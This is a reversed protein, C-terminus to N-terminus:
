NIKAPCIKTYGYLCPRKLKKYRLFKSDLCDRFPFIKRLSKIILSVSDGYPFPGFIKTQKNAKEEGRSVVVRDKQVVIYKFSKDDKLAINYKPKHKKILDSELILAEIESEVLIFSIDVTNSVLKLTKPQLLSKNTFYSSVRSKLNIAKGIYIVSGKKDKFIYVGPQEPMDKLNIM